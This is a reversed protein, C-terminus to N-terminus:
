YIQLKWMNIPKITVNQSKSEKGGIVYMYMTMDRGRNSIRERDPQTIFASFDSQSVDSTFSERYPHHRESLEGGHQSESYYGSSGSIFSSERLLDVTQGTLHSMQGQGGPSRQSQDQGRPSRQNQGQGRVSGEKYGTRLASVQKPVVNKESRATRKERSGVEHGTPKEIVNNEKSFVTMDVGENYFHIESENQAMTFPNEFGTRSQDSQEGISRNPQESQSCLAEMDYDEIDEVVMENNRNTVHDSRPIVHGNEDDKDTNICKLQVGGM